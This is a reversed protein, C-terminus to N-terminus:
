RARDIAGIFAARVGHRRACIALAAFLVPESALGEISVVSSCLYVRIFCLFASFVKTEAM